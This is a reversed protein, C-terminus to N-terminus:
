RNFRAFACTKGNWSRRTNERDAPNGVTLHRRNRQSSVVTPQRAGVDRRDLPRYPSAGRKAGECLENLPAYFPCVNNKQSFPSQGRTEIKAIGDTPRVSRRHAGTGYQILGRPTQEAGRVNEHCARYGTARHPLRSRSDIWPANPRVPLARPVQM